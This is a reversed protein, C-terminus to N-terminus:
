TRLGRVRGPAARFRGAAVPRRGAQQVSPGNGSPRM